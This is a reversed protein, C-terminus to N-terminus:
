SPIPHTTPYYPYCFPRPMPCIPELWYCFHFEIATWVSRLRYCTHPVPLHPLHPLLPTATRLACRADAGPPESPLRTRTFWGVRRGCFPFGTASGTAHYTTHFRYLDPHAPVTGIRNTTASFRLLCHAFTTRVPWYLVWGPTFLRAFFGDMAPICDVTFPM